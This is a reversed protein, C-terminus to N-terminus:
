METRPQNPRNRHSWHLYVKEKSILKNLIYVHETAKKIRLCFHPRMQIKLMWLYSVSETLILSLILKSNTEILNLCHLDICICFYIIRINQNYKSRTNELERRSWMGLKEALLRSSSSSSVNGRVPFAENPSKPKFM